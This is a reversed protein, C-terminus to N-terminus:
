IKGQDGPSFHSERSVFTVTMLHKNTHLKDPGWLTSLFTLLQLIISNNCIVIYMINYKNTELEVDAINAATLFYMYSTIVQMRM